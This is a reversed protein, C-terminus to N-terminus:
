AAQTKALEAEIRESLAVVDQYVRQRRMLEGDVKLMFDNYLDQNSKQVKDAISQLLDLQSKHNQDVKELQDSM